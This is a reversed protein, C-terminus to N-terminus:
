VRRKLVHCGIDSCFHFFLGSSQGAPRLPWVQFRGANNRSVSRPVHGWRIRFSVPVHVRAAHGRLPCPNASWGMTPSCTCLGTTLTVGLSCSLKPKRNLTLNVSFWLLLNWSVDAPIYASSPWKKLHPSSVSRPVCAWWHEVTSYLQGGELSQPFNFSGGMPAPVTSWSRRPSSGKARVWWAESWPLSPMQHSKTHFLNLDSPLSIFSLGAQPHVVLVVFAHSHSAQTISPHLLPAPPSQSQTSSCSPSHVCGSLGMQLECFSAGHEARPNCVEWVLPSSPCPPILPGCLLCILPKGPSLYPPAALRAWGQPCWLGNVIVWWSPETDVWAFVQPQLQEQVTLVEM